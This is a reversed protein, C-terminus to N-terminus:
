VQAGLLSKLEHTEGGMDDNEWPFHEELDETHQSLREM